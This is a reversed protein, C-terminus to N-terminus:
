AQQSAFQCCFAGHITEGIPETRCRSEQQDSFPSHNHACKCLEQPVPMILYNNTCIPTLIHSTHHEEECFCHQCIKNGGTKFEGGLVSWKVAVTRGLHADIQPVSLCNSPFFFVFFVVWERTERCELVLLLDIQEGLLPAIICKIYQNRPGQMIVGVLRPDSYSHMAM